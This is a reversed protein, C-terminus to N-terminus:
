APLAGADVLLQRALSIRIAPDVEATLDILLAFVFREDQYETWGVLWGLDPQEVVAWGTKHAWVWGDGREREVIDRVAAQHEVPFPLEDLLLRELFETQEIPSIRLEGTLWFEDIGGGIDANGYAAATVREAMANEGVRRALEQYLWLASVEIGSRLSHDRNWASLSREVGDWPVVTDVDPLVATDLIVLSNLIKFTSAPRRPTVARMPDHVLMEDDGVRRLVFTGEVGVEDFRDAWIAEVGTDVASDSLTTAPETVTTSALTTATTTTVTTPSTEAPGGESPSTCAGLALAAALLRGVTVPRRTM